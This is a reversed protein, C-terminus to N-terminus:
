GEMRDCFVVSVVVLWFKLIWMNLVGSFVLIMFSLRDCGSFLVLKEWRCWVCRFWWMSIKWFWCMVGVLCM